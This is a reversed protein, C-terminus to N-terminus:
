RIPREYIRFKEQNCCTYNRSGIKVYQCNGCQTITAQSALDYGVVEILWQPPESFQLDRCVTPKISENACSTLLLLIILKNM